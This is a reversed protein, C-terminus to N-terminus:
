LPGSASFPARDEERLTSPKATVRTSAAATLLALAAFEILEGIKLGRKYDMAKLDYRPAVNPVDIQHPASTMVV